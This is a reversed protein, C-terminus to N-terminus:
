GQASREILGTLELERYDVDGRAEIRYEDPRCTFVLIQFKRACELMFATLWHMRQADSQVLQDDLVLMSNVAEAITLRLLTALQERAGVSLAALDRAEGAQRVSQTALEPGIALGEYRGRTLESMRKAIPDVLAKGLHVADERECEKVTDLLLQWAAYDLETEHERDELAHLAEEVQQLRERIVQGGVQQLAGEAKQHESELHQRERELAQITARTEALQEETVAEALPPLLDLEVLQQQLASDAAPLDEREASERAMRHAGQLEDAQSRSDRETRRASELAAEAEVLAAEGAAVAEHAQDREVSSESRLQELESEKESRATRADGEERTAADRAEKWDAGLAAAAESAEQELVRLEPEQAAQVARETELAQQLGRARQRSAELTQELRRRQALLEGEDIEAGQEWRKLAQELEADGLAERVQEELQVARDRAARLAAQVDGAGEARAEAQQARAELAAAEDVLALAARAARKLEELNQVDAAAFAKRARRDWQERLERATSRLRASGATVEVDAIDNIRLRISRQGDVELARGARLARQDAAQEDDIEVLVDLDLTPEITLSLGVALSAEAVQLERALLELAEIEDAGPLASAAVQRRLEQAHARAERALALHQEVVQAQAEARTLSARAAFLQAAGHQERVTKLALRDRELQQQVGALQQEMATVAELRRAAEERAARTRQELAAVREAQQQRARAEKERAELEVLARGIREARLELQQEADGRELEGLRARAAELAQAARARREEAKERLAQAAALEAQRQALQAKTQEVRTHLAAIRDRESRAREVRAEAERRAAQSQWGAEASASAARAADLKELAADIRRRFEAVRQEAGRSEEAQTSVETKRASVLRRQDRLEVWPSGAGTRRRGTATFAEDVRRQTAEVVRKFVPDEALAQLAETLRQQGSDDSDEDLRRHLVAEVDKQEALLATALFSEPLGRTRARGGPAQIGWRLLERLRGDVERGKAEQAFTEGDKSFELYSWREPGSGFSKRVRWIKGPETEFVLTVQPPQDAHWDVFPKRASSGDPLLLAARIAHVLSSKGLENPGYLVNLGRGFALSASRIGAFHRVELQRIWM